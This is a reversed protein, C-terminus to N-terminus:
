LVGEKNYVETIKLITSHKDIGLRSILSAYQSSNSRKLLCIQEVWLTSLDL